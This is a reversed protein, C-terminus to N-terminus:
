YLIQRELEEVSKVVYDPQASKIEQESGYGYLVGISVVKNKKAGIIDDVRDGIMVFDSNHNELFHSLALKILDTKHTCTLDMNSGVLRTFYQSLNFHKLIQEAYFAAKSTVCALTKDNNKLKELLEPIGQYVKNEFIGKIAYYERYVSVAYRATENDLGYYKEFSESLPPGIMLELNVNNENIKMKNLTYRISNIIGPKSDTLTGDLDFLIIKSKIM